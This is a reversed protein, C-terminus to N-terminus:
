LPSFLSLLFMELNNKIEPVLVFTKAGTGMDTKILSSRLICAHCKTQHNCLSHDNMVEIFNTSRFLNVLADVSCIDTYAAKKISAGTIQIGKKTKPGQGCISDLQAELDAHEIQRTEKSVRQHSKCIGENCDQKYSTCAKVAVGGGNQSSVQFSSAEIPGLEEKVTQQIQVDEVSPYGFDPPDKIQLSNRDLVEAVTGFQISSCQCTPQFSRFTSEDM